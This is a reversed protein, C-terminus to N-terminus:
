ITSSDNPTLRNLARMSLCRDFRSALSADHSVFLVSTNSARCEQTLLNLFDALAQADLSATPEDAILLDPRGILARAAAVRQQQGISLETVPRDFASDPLGLAALLRRAEMTAPQAALRERRHRSFSLPLLVNARVSLYSILNFMQFIFGIHDARVRDRQRQSLARLSAGFVSIVGATPELVGAVLNLLTSKGSGSAGHLFVHEGRAIVLTKIALLPPEGPWSFQVDTLMVAPPM